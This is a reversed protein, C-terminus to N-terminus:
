GNYVGLPALYRALGSVRHFEAVPSLRL